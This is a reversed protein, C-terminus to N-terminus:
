RTPSGRSIQGGLMPDSRVPFYGTAKCAPEIYNKFVEEARKRVSISAQGMPTILFCPRQLVTSRVDDHQVDMTAM